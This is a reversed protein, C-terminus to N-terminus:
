KPCLINLIVGTDMFWLRMFTEKSQLGMRLWCYHVTKRANHVKMMNFVWSCIDIKVDTQQLSYSKNLKVSNHLIIIM